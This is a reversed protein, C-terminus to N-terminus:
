VPYGREKLYNIVDPDVYVHPPLRWGPPPMAISRGSPPVPTKGDPGYSIQKPDYQLPWPIAENRVSGDARQTMCTVYFNVLKEAYWTKTPVCIGQAGSLTARLGTTNIAYRKMTSAPHAPKAATSLTRQAARDQAISKALDSQISALQAPTYTDPKQPQEAKPRNRVLAVQKQPEVTRLAQPTARPTKKALLKREAPPPAHVPKPVVVPKPLRAVHEPVPRQAPHPVTLAPPAVRHPAGSRSPAAQARKEIHMVTSMAVSEDSKPSPPVHLFLRALLDTAVFALVFALAHVLISALAAFRLTRNRRWDHEPDSRTIM